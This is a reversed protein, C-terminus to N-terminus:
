RTSNIYPDVIEATRTHEANWEASYAICKSGSFSYFIIGEAEIGFDSYSYSYTYTKDKTSISNEKVKVGMGQMTEGILSPMQMQVGYLFGLKEFENSVLGTLDMVSISILIYGDSNYNEDYFFQYEMGDQYESQWEPFRYWYFSQSTGPISYYGLESDSTPVASESSSFEFSEGFERFAPIWRSLSSTRAAFIITWDHSETSVIMNYVHVDENGAVSGRVYDLVYADYGKFDVKKVGNWEPIAYISALAEYMYDSLFDIYEDGLVGLGGTGEKCSITIRCYDDYASSNATYGELSETSANLGKQQLVAEYLSDGSESISDKIDALFGQQLEMSAPVSFSCYGNKVDEASLSLSVLFIAFCLIAKKM